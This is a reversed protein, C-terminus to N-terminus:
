DFWSPPNSEMGSRSFMRDMKEVKSVDWAELNQNFSGANFFMYRMDTVNETNWQGIDQNFDSTGNFMNSMDTVKSTDWQSLDQNFAKAGAFMRKMNTVDSVDWGTVDIKAFGADIDEIVDKYLNSADAFGLKITKPVANLGLTNKLDDRSSIVLVDSGDPGGEPEDEPKTTDEEETNDSNDNNDNDNNTDGNTDAPDTLGIGDESSSDSDCAHNTILLLCLLLRLM